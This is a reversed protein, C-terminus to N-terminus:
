ARPSRFKSFFAPIVSLIALAIFLIIMTPTLVDSVSNIHALKSGAYSFLLCAPMIGIATAGVFDSLRIPSLAALITVLFFPVLTFLRLALLYWFGSRVIEEKIAIVRRGNFYRYASTWFLRIVLFAITAGTTAAISSFVFGRWTGFLFGGTLTLLTAIPLSLATAVIYTLMLIFVSFIYHHDAYLKLSTRTAKISDLTIYNKSVAWALTILILVIILWWNNRQYPQYSM